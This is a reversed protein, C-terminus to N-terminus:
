RRETDRRQSHLSSQMNSVSKKYSAESDSMTALTLQLERNECQLRTISADAYRRKELVDNREELFANRRDSEELQRELSLLQLRNRDREKRWEIRADEFRQTDVALQDEFEKCRRRVEKLSHSAADAQVTYANLM